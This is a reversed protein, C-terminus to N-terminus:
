AVEQRSLARGALAVAVVGALLPVVVAATVNPEGRTLGPDALHLLVTEAYPRVALREATAGLSGVVGEWLVVYLLGVPLARPVVLGLLLFLGCYAVAAVGTSAATAVVLGSGAGSLLVGAVLPAVVLPLTVTLSAAGAAAALQWRPLPRLWLYVLTRDERPEGLAASAFVLAVVPVLVALGFGRVVDIGITFAVASDAARSGEAVGIVVALLGLAGLGLLRGRTAQSRLVLRYVAIV